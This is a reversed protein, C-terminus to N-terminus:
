MKRKEHNWIQIDTRQSMVYEKSERWKGLILHMSCLHPTFNINSNASVQCRHSPPSTTADFRGVLVHDCSKRDIYSVWRLFVYEFVDLEPIGVM